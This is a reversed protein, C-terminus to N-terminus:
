KKNKELSLSKSVLLFYTESWYFHKKNECFLLLYAVCKLVPNYLTLECYLSHGENAVNECGRWLTLEYKYGM